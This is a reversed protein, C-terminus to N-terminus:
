TLLILRLLVLRHYLATSHKAQPADFGFTPMGAVHVVYCLAKTASSRRVCQQDFEAPRLCRKEAIKTCRSGRRLGM